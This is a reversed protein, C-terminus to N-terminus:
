IKSILYKLILGLISAYVFGNISDSIVAILLIGMAGWNSASYESTDLLSLFVLSLGYIIFASIIIGLLNKLVNKFYQKYSNFRLTLMLNGSVLLIVFVNKFRYIYDYDLYFIILYCIISLVSNLIISNIIIHKDIRNLLEKM